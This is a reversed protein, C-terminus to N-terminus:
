WGSRREVALLSPWRPDLVPSRAATAAADEALDLM